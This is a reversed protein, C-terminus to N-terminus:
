SDVITLDEFFKQINIETVIKRKKKTTTKNLQETLFTNNEDNIIFNNNIPDNMETLGGFTWPYKNLGYKTITGLRTFKASDTEDELDVKMPDYVKLLEKQLVFSYYKPATIKDSPTGGYYNSVEDLSFFSTRPHSMNIKESVIEFVSICEDSWLLNEGLKWVLTDNIGPCKSQRLMENIDPPYHYIEGNAIMARYTYPRVEITGNLYDLYNVEIGALKPPVILDFKDLTNIYKQLLNM